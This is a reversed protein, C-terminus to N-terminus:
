TAAQKNGEAEGKKKQPLRKRPQHHKRLAARLGGMKKKHLQLQQKLLEVEGSQPQANRSGPQETATATPNQSNVGQAGTNQAPLSPSIMLSRAFFLAAALLGRIDRQM